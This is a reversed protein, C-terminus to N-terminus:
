FVAYHLVHVGAVEGFLEDAPCCDLWAVFLL